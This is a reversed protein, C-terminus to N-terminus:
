RATLGERQAAASGADECQMAERPAWEFHAREAFLKVLMSEANKRRRERAVCGLYRIEFAGGGRV